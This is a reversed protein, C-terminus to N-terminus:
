PGPSAGIHVATPDAEAISPMVMLSSPEITPLTPDIVFISKIPLPTMAVAVAPPFIAVIV